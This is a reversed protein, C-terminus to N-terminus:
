NEGSRLIRINRSKGEWNERSKNPLPPVGEQYRGERLSKHERPHTIGDKQDQEKCWPKEGEVMAVPAETIKKHTKKKEGQSRSQL